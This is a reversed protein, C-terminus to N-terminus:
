FIFLKNIKIFRRVTAVAEAGDSGAQQALRGISDLAERKGRAWYAYADATEAFLFDTSQLAFILLLWTLCDAREKENVALNFRTADPINPDFFVSQYRKSTQWYREVEEVPSVSTKDALRFLEALPYAQTDLPLDGNVVQGFYDHQYLVARIESQIMEKGMVRCAAVALDAGYTQHNSFHCGCFRSFDHFISSWLLLDRLYKEAQNFIWRRGWLFSACLNPCHNILTQCRRWVKVSHAFGHDQNAFFDEVAQVSGTPLNLRTLELVVSLLDPTIEGIEQCDVWGAKVTAM